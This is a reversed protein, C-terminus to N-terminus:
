QKFKFNNLKLKEAIYAWISLIHETVIKTCRNDKIFQFIFYAWVWWAVIDTPRHVWTMVRCVGMVISTVIWFYWVQKMLKNNSLWWYYRASLWIMMSVAAHDSPFSATPLEKLITSLHEWQSYIPREKFLFFQMIINFLAVIWTNMAIKISRYDSESKNRFYGVIFRYLLFIPYTFVFIDALLWISTAVREPSNQILQNLRHLIHVWRIPEYLTYLM